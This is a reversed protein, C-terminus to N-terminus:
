IFKAGVPVKYHFVLLSFNKLVSFKQNITGRFPFICFFFFRPFFLCSKGKKKFLNVTNQECFFQDKKKGKRPLSVIFFSNEAPAQLLFNKLSSVNLVTRQKKKQM